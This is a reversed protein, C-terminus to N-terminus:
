FYSGVKGGLQSGAMAGIGLPGGLAAGAVTGILGGFSRGQVGPLTYGPDQYGEVVTADDSIKTSGRKYGEALEKATKRQEQAAYSIQDKAKLNENIANFIGSFRGKGRDRKELEDGSELNNRSSM